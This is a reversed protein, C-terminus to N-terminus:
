QEQIRARPYMDKAHVAADAWRRVCAGPYSSDSRSHPFGSASSLGDLNWVPRSIKRESLRKQCISPEVNTLLLAPEYGPDSLPFFGRGKERLIM